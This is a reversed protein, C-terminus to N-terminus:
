PWGAVPGPAQRQGQADYVSLDVDKISKTIHVIQGTHGSFHEVVHFVALLGSVSYGQITHRATLQEEDLSRICASARRVALECNALLDARSSGGRAAFEAPRDRERLPHAATVPELPEAGLGRLRVRHMELRKATRAVGRDPVPRKRDPSAVSRAGSPGKAVGGSRIPRM